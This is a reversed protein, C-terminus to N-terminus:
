FQDMQRIRHIFKETEQDQSKRNGSLLVIPRFTEFEINEKLTMFKLKQEQNLVQRLLNWSRSLCIWTDNSSWFMSWIVTLVLNALLKHLGTWDIHSNGSEEASGALWISGIFIGNSLYLLFKRMLKSSDPKWGEQTM